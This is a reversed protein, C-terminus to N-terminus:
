SINEPIDDFTLIIPAALDLYNWFNLGFQTAAGDHQFINKQIANKLLGPLTHELFYM